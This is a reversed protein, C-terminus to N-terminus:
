SDTPGGDIDIVSAIRSPDSPSHRLGGMTSHAKGSYKTAYGM